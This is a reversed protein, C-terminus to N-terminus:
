PFRFVDQVSTIVKLLVQFRGACIYDSEPLYFMAGAYEDPEFVRSHVKM